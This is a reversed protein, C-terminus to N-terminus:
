ALNSSRPYVDEPDTIVNILAPAGSEIARDIAPGIEEAREVMEGYGGLAQMVQDYRTKEGLEAAVHYGFFQKMPHKELGWCSNNGVVIVVPVEFRVLTDLEGMSFGAAGDGMMLFVTSDPSALKAGLAYGPGTGLCGYPGPELFRGPQAVDVLKGAYSVFDGGDGVVISDPALRERLAGYIRPPRIPGDNSRFGEEEAARVATERERLAALWEAPTEASLRSALGRFVAALNGAASSALEVNAALREPTDMLHVVRAKAFQGFGLRFDLPVGAVLVLDSEKLALSRARSFALDHSSALLGRGMGNMVVPLRAQEALERLAEEAHEWYVDSGAVLLPREAAALLSAIEDLRAPDPESGAPEPRPNPVVARASGFFTDFPVDAFVPGRHPTRAELLLRDLESPIASTKKLTAARKCVSEVIPIHDLEQLSGSGWRAEPARGGIVAMPAGNFWATTLASVANTVGPGATVSAVGLKRTVKAWAEAAFVATQEHRVDVIRLDRKVCGDYLPFIHGGSLTFLVEVGHNCLVEVALLGGHGEVMMATELDSSRNSM